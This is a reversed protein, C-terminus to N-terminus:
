EDLLTDCASAYINKFNAWNSLTVDEVLLVGGAYLLTTISSTSQHFLLAPRYEDSGNNHKGKYFDLNRGHTYAELWDERFIRLESQTTGALHWLNSMVHYVLHRFNIKIINGTADTPLYHAGDNLKIDWYGNGEGVNSTVIHYYNNASDWIVRSDAGKFTAGTALLKIFAEQAELGGDFALNAATEIKSPLQNGYGNGGGVNDISERAYFTTLESQFNQLSTPDYENRKSIIAAKYNGYETTNLDEVLGAGHLAANIFTQDPSKTISFTDNGNSLTHHVVIVGNKDLAALENIRIPRLAAKWLETVKANLINVLGDFNSDSYLEIRAYEGINIHDNAYIDISSGDLTIRFLDGEVADYRGNVTVGNIGLAEIELIRTDFLADDNFATEYSEKAFQKYTAFDFNPDDFHGLSPVDDDEKDVGNHIVFLPYGNSGLSYKIEINDSDDLDLALIEAIRDEELAYNPHGYRWIAEAIALVWAKFNSDSVDNGNPIAVSPFDSNNDYEAVHTQVGNIPESGFGTFAIGYKDFAEMFARRSENTTGVESNATVAAADLFSGLQTPPTNAAYIAAIEKELTPPNELYWMRTIVKLVFESFEQPTHSSLNKNYSSTINVGDTLTINTPTNPSIFSFQVIDGDLRAFFTEWDAKVSPTNLAADEIASASAYGTPAQDASYISNLESEFATLVCSFDFETTQANTVSGLLMVMIIILNKM